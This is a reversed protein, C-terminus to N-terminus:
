STALKPGKIKFKWYKISIEWIVDFEKYRSLQIAGLKKHERM